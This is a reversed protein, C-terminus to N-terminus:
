SEVSPERSIAMHRKKHRAPPAPAAPIPYELLQIFISNIIYFKSDLRYDKALELIASAFYTPPHNWSPPNEREEGQGDGVEAADGETAEEGGGEGALSIEEEEKM